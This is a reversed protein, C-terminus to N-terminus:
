HKRENTEDRGRDAYLAATLVAKAFTTASHVRLTEGKKCFCAWPQQVGLAKKGSLSWDSNGMLFRYGRSTWLRITTFAAQLEEVEDM